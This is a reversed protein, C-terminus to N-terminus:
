KNVSFLKDVSEVRCVPCKIYSPIKDSPFLLFDEKRGRLDYKTYGFRSKCTECVIEKEKATSAIIRM